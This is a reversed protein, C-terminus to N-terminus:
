RPPQTTFWFFSLCLLQPQFHARLVIATTTHVNRWNNLKQHPPFLDVVLTFGPDLWHTSIISIILDLRCQSRMFETARVRDWGLSSWTFEDSNWFRSWSATKIWWDLLNTTETKRSIPMKVRRRMVKWNKQVWMAVAHRFWWSDHLSLQEMVVMHQSKAMAVWSLFICLHIMKTTLRLNKTTTKPSRTIQANERRSNCHDLRLM